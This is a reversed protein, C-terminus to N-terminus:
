REAGLTRHSYRHIGSRAFQACHRGGRRPVMFGFGDLPHRVQKRDFASSVVDMPAHEIGALLASLKPM